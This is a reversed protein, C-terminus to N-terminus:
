AKVPEAGNNKNARRPADTSPTEAKAAPKNDDAKDPDCDETVAAAVDSRRNVIYSKLAIIGCGALVCLSALIPGWFSAMLTIAVFMLDSAVLPTLLDILFGAVTVYGWIAAFLATIEVAALLLCGLFELAKQAYSEEYEGSEELEALQRVAVNNGAAAEGIGAALQDIENIGIDKLTIYLAAYMSGADIISQEDDSWSKGSDGYSTVNQDIIPAMDICDYASVELQATLTKVFRKILVDEPMSAMKHKAETSMNKNYLSRYMFETMNIIFGRRQGEERLELKTMLEELRMRASEELPMDFYKSFKEAGDEAGKILEGCVNLLNERDIKPLLSYLADCLSEKTVAGPELREMLDERYKRRMEELETREKLDM